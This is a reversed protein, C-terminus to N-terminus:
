DCIAYRNQLSGDGPSVGCADIGRSAADISGASRPRRQGGGPDPLVAGVAVGGPKGDAGTGAGANEPRIWAEKGRMKALQRVCRM